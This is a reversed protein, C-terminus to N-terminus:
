TGTHEQKSDKLPSGKEEQWYVGPLNNTRKGPTAVRDVGDVTNVGLPTLIKQAWTPM